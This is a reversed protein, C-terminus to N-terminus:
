KTDYEHKNSKHQQLKPLNLTLMNINVNHAYKLRFPYFWNDYINNEECKKENLNTIDDHM